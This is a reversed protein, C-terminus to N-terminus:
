KGNKWRCFFADAIDIVLFMFFGMLSLILIGAYMETYSIRMWADVIYFGMGRDTGYTETFFLVSIATGTAIRLATLIDPLIAPLTVWRLTNFRNAGLSTLVHFDERPINRVADRSAVIIQFVLILIIMTLKSAEGIGLLLMVIPLLALKPIPYTFYLLPSLVKDMKRSDALLIGIPVGIFLSLLVGEIIRLSSATVHKWMGGSLIGGLQAYVEVPSVLVRSQMCLAAVFWIIHLAAFGYIFSLLRKRM